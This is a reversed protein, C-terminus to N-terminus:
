EYKIRANPCLKAQHAIHYGRASQCIACIHHVANSIEKQKATEHKQVNKWTCTSLNYFHCPRVFPEPKIKFKNQFKSSKVQLQEMDSEIIRRRDKSFVGQLVILPTDEEIRNEIFDRDEKNCHINIKPDHDTMERTQEEEKKSVGGERKRGGEERERRPSRGRPVEKEQRPSRGRPVEKERRPSRGRPVQNETETEKPDNKHKEDRRTETDQTVEAVEKTNDHEEKTIGVTEMTIKEQKKHAKEKKKSTGEESKVDANRNRVQDNDSEEKSDKSDSSDSDQSESESRSDTTSEDSESRKKRKTKKRKGPRKKAVRSKECDDTDSGYRDKEKTNKKKLSIKRRPLSKKSAGPESDTEESNSRRVRRKGTDARKGRNKKKKLLLKELWSTERKLRRLKARDKKSIRDESSVEETDDEEEEEDDDDDDDEDTELRRKRARAMDPPPSCESRHKVTQSIDGTRMIQAELTVSSKKQCAFIKVVFM